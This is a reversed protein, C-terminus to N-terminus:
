YVAEDGVGAVVDTRQELPIEVAVGFDHGAARELEGLGRDTVQARHPLADPGRYDPPM